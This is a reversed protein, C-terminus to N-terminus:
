RVFQRKLFPIQILFLALCGIGYVLTKSVEMGVFPSKIRPIEEQLMAQLYAPESSPFIYVLAIGAMVIAAVVLWTRKSVLPKYQKAMSTNMEIQKMVNNVFNPSPQEVGVEEVWKRTFEQIDKSPKEM